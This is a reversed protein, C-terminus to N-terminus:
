MFTISKKMFSFEHLMLEHISILTNRRTIASNLETRVLPGWLIIQGEVKFVSPALKRASVSIKQAVFIL